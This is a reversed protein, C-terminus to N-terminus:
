ELFKMNISDYLKHVKTDQKDSLIIDEINM